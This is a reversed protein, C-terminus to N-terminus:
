ATSPPPAGLRRGIGFWIAATMLLSAPLLVAIPAEPLQAPPACASVAIRGSTRSTGSTVDEARVRWAKADKHGSVDFSYAYDTVGNVTTVLLQEPTDSWGNDQRELTLVLQSGTPFSRLSIDGSLSDGACAASVSRVEKAAAWASTPAFLTLAAILTALVLALVRRM